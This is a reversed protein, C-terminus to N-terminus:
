SPRSGSRSTAASGPAPSCRGWTSRTSTCGSCRRPCTARSSGGQSARSSRRRASAPTASSCRTTRAAAPWCTCRGSSRPERGILPDIKGQAAKEYLDTTYEALAQAPSKKDSSGAQGAGVPAGVDKRPGNKRVGHSLFSVVDIREVGQKKVLFVAQSDPEGFLAVLVNGGDAETKQAGQVHMVARNLVRRFGLTQIPEYDGEVDIGEVGDLFEVVEKELAKLDAGCAELVESARPEHLLGYLLHELTLFEHRRKKADEMAMGLAVRLADSFM